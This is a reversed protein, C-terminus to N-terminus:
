MKGLIARFSKWSRALKFVRLLRVGRLASLAGGTLGELGAVSLAYEALSVVVLVADFLNYSDRGYEKFGLGFLKLIMEAFFCWMFVTNLIELHYEEEPTIDVRDLALV